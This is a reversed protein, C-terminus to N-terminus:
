IEQGGVAISNIKGATYNSFYFQLRSGAPMFKHYGQLWSTDQNSTSEALLTYLSNKDYDNYTRIEYGKATDDDHIMEIYSLMTNQDFDLNLTATTGSYTETHEFLIDYSQARKVTWAGSLSIGIRRNQEIKWISANILDNKIATLSENIATLLQTYDLQQPQPQRFRMDVEYGPPCDVM